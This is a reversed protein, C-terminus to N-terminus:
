APFKYAQWPQNFPHKGKLRVVLGLDEKIVIDQYCISYQKIGKVFAELEHADRFELWFNRGRIDHEKPMYSDFLESIKTKINSIWTNIDEESLGDSTDKTTLYFYDMAHAIKIMLEQYTVTM